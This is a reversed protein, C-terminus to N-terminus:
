GPRRLGVWEAWWYRGLKGRWRRGGLSPLLETSSACVGSGGSSDRRAPHLRRGERSYLFGGRRRWVRSEGRNGMKREVKERDGTVMVSTWKPLTVSLVGSDRSHGLIHAVRGIGDCLFSDLLSLEQRRYDVMRGRLLEGSDAFSCGDGDVITTTSWVFLVTTLRRIEVVRTLMRIDSTDDSQENAQNHRRLSVWRPESRHGIRPPVAVVSNKRTWQNPNTM